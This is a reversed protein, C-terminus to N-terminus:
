LTRKSDTTKSGLPGLITPPNLAKFISTEEGAGMARALRSSVLQQLDGQVKSGEAKVEPTSSNCTHEVNGLM